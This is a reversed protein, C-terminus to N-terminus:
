EALKSLESIIKDRMEVQKMKEKLMNITKV